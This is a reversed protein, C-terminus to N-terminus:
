TEEEKYGQLVMPKGMSISWYHLHRLQVLCRSAVTRRVVGFWLSNRRTGAIRVALCHLVREARSGSRSTRGSVYTERRGM